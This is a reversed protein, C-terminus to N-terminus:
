TTVQLKVNHCLQYIHRRLLRYVCGATRLIRVLILFENTLRSGGRRQRGSQM